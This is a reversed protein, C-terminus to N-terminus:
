GLAGSCPPAGADAIDFGSTLLRDVRSVYNKGSACGLRHLPKQALLDGADINDLSPTALEHLGAVDEAIGSKGCHGGSEAIKTPRRANGDDATGGARSREGVCHKM